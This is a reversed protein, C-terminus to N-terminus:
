RTLTARTGPTIPGPTLVRCTIGGRWDSELAQRLGPVQEDMRACPDTEGTIELILEGIQLRGGQTRALDLGEVLLNARRTTWHLDSGLDRCADAWAESSLVTVQRPGPRGRFDGGVGEDLSVSAEQVERMPARSASRVAIGLLKGM